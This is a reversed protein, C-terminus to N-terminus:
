RRTRQPSGPHKPSAPLAAGAKQEVDKMMDILM